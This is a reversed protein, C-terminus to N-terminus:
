HRALLVILLTVIALVGIFWRLATQRRTFASSVSDCYYEAPKRPNFRIPFTENVHLRYLSTSSDATLNGGQVGGNADHYFFSIKVIPPGVEPNDAGGTDGITVVTATTEPWGDVGRMRGWLNGM